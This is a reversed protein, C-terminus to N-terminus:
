EDVDDFISRSEDTVAQPGRRGYFDDSGRTRGSRSESLSAITEDISALGADIFFISTEEENFVEKYDRLTNKLESFYEDPDDNCNDSWNGICEELNPLLQSRVYELTDEYEKPTFLGRLDERLFGSDPTDVALHRIGDVHRLRESEPLLGVEQLRVIVDVDSVAYLYSGVHLQSIFTPSDAIFKKLFELDCRSSLFRNVANRSEKDTAIFTHIRSLVAHYRDSPVIVKVGELNVDGCSVETFLQRVPTGVLYIDMLERNEAVLAAFADRITPHKFRWFFQGGQQVQILLSGELAVLAGRLEAASGGFLSIARDEESELNVPSSLIGGRMFVLAIASRSAVDLTRIIEKLFEMPHAVFQKLGFTSIHLQKSFAPNGLRRAIEPSFREHAAVTPLFPKLERKVKKTQTGLRIHNYLIQEREEKSLDEVRIVVQADALVPLASEKLFNRASRYIYDRSTFVIKAGRKVAAQIHPFVQNWRITGQWDLQTAGFADDVWFFQKSEHPNSHRVFDDADRIKLTFCGWEDLAGVALSAAITSKGCAPEGLLMVFGHEVLAKTSRQYADTIVFKALDDGLASLIDKAQDYAREDLIQSLDGLGYVRPVLMRLRPSERIFQSIRDAGYSAFRKIGPVAEFAAKINEESVGTLRASTFLIYNDALGRAALRVAKSLEDSIDSLRLTENLQSSFKCQVTFSGEFYEGAKPRWVGHFAGDRGGDHSDFYGQVVQGWLESAISLCLQQFAKWGLSYLEYTPEMAQVTTPM